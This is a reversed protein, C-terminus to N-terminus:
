EFRTIVARNAWLTATPTALSTAYLYSVAPPMRPAPPVVATRGDSLVVPFIPQRPDAIAAQTYFRIGELRALYPLDLYVLPTVGFGDTQGLPVSVIPQAHLRGCLGPLGLNPDFLDINLVAPQNLPALYAAAGLRIGYRPDSPGYNQLYLAHGVPSGGGLPCGQGVAAGVEQNYSLATGLERDVDPSGTAAVNEFRLEFV